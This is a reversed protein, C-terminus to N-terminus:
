TELDFDGKKLNDIGFSGFFGEFIFCFFDDFKDTISIHLCCNIMECLLFM